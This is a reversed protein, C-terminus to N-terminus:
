EEEDEDYDEDEEYEEDGEGDEWDEDDEDEIWDGRGEDWETVEVNSDDMYVTLVDEGDAIRKLRSLLTSSAMEGGERYYSFTVGELDVDLYAHNTLTGEYEEGDVKIVIDEGDLTWKGNEEEGELRITLKGNDKLEIFNDEADLDLDVGSYTMSVGEYLGVNPDNQKKGGCGALLTLSLVTVIATVAARGPVRRPETKRKM